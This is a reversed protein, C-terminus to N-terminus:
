SNNKSTRYLDELEGLKVSDRVIDADLIMFYRIRLKCWPGWETRGYCKGIGYEGLSKFAETSIYFPFLGQKDDKKFLVYPMFQKYFGFPNYRWKRKLKHEFSTLVYSEPEYRRCVFRTENQWLLNDIKCDFYFKCQACLPKDFIM